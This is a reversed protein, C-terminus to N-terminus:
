TLTRGRKCVLVTSLLKELITPPPATLFPGLVWSEHGRFHRVPELERNNGGSGGDDSGDGGGGDSGNDGSDDVM